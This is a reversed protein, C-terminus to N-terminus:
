RPCPPVLPAPLIAEPGPYQGPAPDPTARSASEPAPQATGGVAVTHETWQTGDWWRLPGGAEVPDEYWGPAPMDM